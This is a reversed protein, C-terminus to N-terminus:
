GGAAPALLALECGHVLTTARGVHAGHVIPLASRLAPALDPNQAALRELLDSVNAGDPLELTLVPAPAFRAIGTGLRIRVEVSSLQL